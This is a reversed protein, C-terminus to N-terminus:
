YGRNMSDGLTVDFTASIGGTVWLVCGDYGWNVGECLDGDDVHEISVSLIRRRATMVTEARGCSSAMHVRKTKLPRRQMHNNVLDSHEARRIARERERLCIVANKTLHGAIKVGGLVPDPIPPETHM